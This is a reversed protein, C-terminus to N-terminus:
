ATPTTNAYAPSTNDAAFVFICNGAEAERPASGSSYKNETSMDCSCFCPKRKNRKSLNKKKKVITVSLTLFM